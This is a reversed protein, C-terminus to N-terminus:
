SARRDVNQLWQIEEFRELFKQEASRWDWFQITIPAVIRDDHLLVSDWDEGEARIIAQNVEASTVAEDARKVSAPFPYQLGFREAVARENLEEVRKFPGSFTPDYKLPRILDGNYAESADHLLKEMPDLHPEFLSVYVSHEAVSLFGRTAGNYRAKMALHHAITEIEVEEARPDLPWYKRGTFTHMFNGKRVSM